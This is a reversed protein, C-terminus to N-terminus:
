PNLAQSGAARFRSCGKCRSKGLMWDHLAARNDHADTCNNMGELQLKLWRQVRKKGAEQAYGCTDKTHVVARVSIGSIEHTVQLQESTKMEQGTKM